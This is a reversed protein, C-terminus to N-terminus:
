PGTLLALLQRTAEGRHSKANKETSTLEASTCKRDPLYLLPDYGFGNDGKPDLTIVGDFTGRSEAVITGDPEALCMACVFRASREAEPVDGMADILKANNAADRRARDGEVGSWRASHVGPAGGLADVELGSDDALCREGTAQAYGIAKLRANGEFSPADEVPEDPEIDLDSLSRVVIGHPLLISAVEDIKHPNSTAFLINM